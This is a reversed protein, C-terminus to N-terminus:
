MAKATVGLTKGVTDNFWDTCEKGCRKAFKPLAVEQLIRLRTKQDEATVPVLTLNTKNLPRPKTVTTVCRPDNVTCWVGHDTAEEAMKWGRAAAWGNAEKLIVQQVRPDLKAWSGKSAVMSMVSWQVIMPYIHTAVETWKALNGSNSGTIACDIVKRQMGPVVESFPITVPVAGLAEVFEAMSSSFVRTRKGKLDAINNLPVACWFIQGGTPWMTLPMVNARELYMKELRPLAVAIVKRLTPVDQILGSVEIGEIMPLEGSAYTATATFIDAVGLNAMRFFEPGKIGAESQAIVDATVRGGTVQPLRELFLPKHIDELNSTGPNSGITKLHVKPFDQALAGSLGVALGLGLGLGVQYLRALM